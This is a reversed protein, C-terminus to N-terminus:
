RPEADSSGSGASAQELRDRVLDRHKPELAYWFPVAVLLAGGIMNGLGAPLLNWILAEGWAPGLGLPAALGFYGMNAPAHQFGATVFLTVALFVPVYKGIITRGMTAFFAAMGVFTNALVGSAVAQLWAATTGAQAYAMKKAVVATLAEQVEPRYSQAIAVLQGFAWAGVLNGVAVLVWFVVVRRFLRRRAGRLLVAPMVVNAETFLAAESLVVFFFGTSFGLGMLLDHPGGADVGTTLLVSFLAGAGIFAGAVLALVFLQLLTLHRLRRDGFHAMEELVHDASLHQPRPSATDARSEMEAPSEMGAADAVVGPRTPRCRSTAVARVTFVIPVFRGAVPSAGGASATEARAVWARWGRAEGVFGM